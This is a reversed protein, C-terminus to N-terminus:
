KQQRQAVPFVDAVYKVIDSRSVIGVLVGQEVVPLPNIDHSTILRAAEVAETGKEVTIVHKTMVDKVQTEGVFVPDVGERKEGKEALGKVYAPVYSEILERMIDFETVIGVVKQGDGIVPMGSIGHRALRMSAALLTDEPKAVIVEKTM